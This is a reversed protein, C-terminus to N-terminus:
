YITMQKQIVKDQNELISGWCQNQTQDILAIQTTM